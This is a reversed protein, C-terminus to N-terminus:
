VFVQSASMFCFYGARPTSYNFGAPYKLEFILVPEWLLSHVVRTSSVYFLIFYGLACLISYPTEATLQTLAFVVPSYMKSSAERIFTM